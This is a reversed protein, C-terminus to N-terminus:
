VPDQFLFCVEPFVLFDSCVISEALLTLVYLQSAWTPSRPPGHPLKMLKGPWIEISSLEGFSWTLINKHGPCDGQACPSSQQDKNQGNPFSASLVMVAAKIPIQFRCIFVPKTSPLFWCSLAQSDTQWAQLRVWPRTSVPLIIGGLLM